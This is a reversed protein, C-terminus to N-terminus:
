RARKCASEIGRTCVYDYLERAADKDKDVGRGKWLADALGLCAEIDKLDCGRSFLSAAREADFHPSSKDALVRALRRCAEGHGVECADRVMTRGREFDTEFLSAGLQGCSYSDELDCGRTWLAQARELSADAGMLPNNALNGGNACAAAVGRECGAEFLTLRGPPDDEPRMGAAYLKELNNCAAAHGGDCARIYFAIAGPPDPKSGDISLHTVLGMSNCGALYGADCAAGYHKRAKDLDREVGLGIHYLAGLRRCGAMEGQQCATTHLSLAVAADKDVGVGLQYLAGRAVCARELGAACARAFFPEAQDAEPSEQHYIGPTMQAKSWGVVLCAGPHGEECAPELAAAADQLAEPAWSRDCLLAEGADCAAQYAADLAEPSAHIGDAHFDLSVADVFAQLSGTEVPTEASAVGVFLALM